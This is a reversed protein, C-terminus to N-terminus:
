IAQIDIINNESRSDLHQMHNWVAIEYSTQQLAPADGQQSFRSHITYITDGYVIESIAEGDKREYANLTFIQNRGM